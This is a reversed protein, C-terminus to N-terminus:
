RKEAGSVRCMPESTPCALGHSGSRPGVLRVDNRNPVDVITDGDATDLDIGEGNPASGPGHSM